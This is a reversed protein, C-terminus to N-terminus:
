VATVVFPAAYLRGGGNFQVWVKYDGTHPLRVSLHMTPPVTASAPLADAGMDMGGQMQMGPMPASSRMAMAHVHTYSLDAAGIAVVHAFAGLYPHLDSAPRGGKTVVISVPTDAGAAMRDSSLRVLYPGATATQAPSGAARSSGSAGARVAVPVDFRFVPHGLGHPAADAYLHYLAPRPFRVVDHFTGDNELTPHVHMFVSLDDSVVILHMRRQMDVDFSRVRAGDSTLEEIDIPRQLGSGGVQIAARVATTVGNAVVGVGNSPQTAAATSTAAAALFAACLLRRLNKRM